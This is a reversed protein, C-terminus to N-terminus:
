AEAIRRSKNGCLGNMKFTYCVLDLLRLILLAEHIYMYSAIRLINMFESPIPNIHRIHM